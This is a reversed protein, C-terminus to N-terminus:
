AFYKSLQDKSTKIHDICQRIENELRSRLQIMENSAVVKDYNTGLKHDIKHNYDRIVPRGMIFSLSCMVLDWGWGMKNFKFADLLNRNDFDKVIDSHIFWVTEDTCACMKINSHSSSVSNIDAYESTYWINAIDPAYIGWEYDDFYKIADEVLENWNDYSTDGQIHFLVKKNRNYLELAKKFQDSFYADNGLNIWGEKTNNDDSNIVIIDDFIKTLDEEIKCVKEFQGPWNFIFAQIDNKTITM